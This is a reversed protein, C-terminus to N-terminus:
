ASGATENMLGDIAHQNGMEINAQVLDIIAESTYRRQDQLAILQGVLQCFIALIQDAPMDPAKRRIVKCLALRLREHDASPQVVKTKM